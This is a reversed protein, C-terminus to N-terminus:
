LTKGISLDEGAKPSLYIMQDSWDGRPITLGCRDVMRGPAARSGKSVGVDQSGQRWFCETSTWEAMERQGDPGELAGQTCGERCGSDGSVTRLPKGSGPAYSRM